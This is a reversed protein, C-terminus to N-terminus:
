RSTSTTRRRSRPPWRGVTTRTRPIPRPRSSPACCPTTHAPTRPSSSARSRTPGAPPADWLERTLIQIFGVGDFVARQNFRDPGLFGDINDARLNAVMEHPPVPRIHVDRDPDLGAEAVYYRSLYSHISYDFPVAFRFGRWDKPDRMDRHKNGLTIAQSNISEVAPM